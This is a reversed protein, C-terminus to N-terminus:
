ISRWTSAHPQNGITVFWGFWRDSSTSGRGSRTNNEDRAQENVINFDCQRSTSPTINIISTSGSGSIVFSPYSTATVCWTCKLPFKSDSQATFDGRKTRNKAIAHDSTDIHIYPASTINRTCLVTYLCHECPFSGAIYAHLAFFSQYHGIIIIYCKRFWHSFWLKFLLQM